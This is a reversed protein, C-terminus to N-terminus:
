KKMWLLKLLLPEIEPIPEFIVAEIGENDEIANVAALGTVTEPLKVTPVEYV